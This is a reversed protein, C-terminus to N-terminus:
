GLEGRELIQARCRRFGASWSRFEVFLDAIQFAFHRRQLRNLVALDVGRRSPDWAFEETPDAFAQALSVLIGLEQEVLVFGFWVPLFTLSPRLLWILVMPGLRLLGASPATRTGTTMLFVLAPLLLRRVWPDAAISRRARLCLRSRTPRCPRM